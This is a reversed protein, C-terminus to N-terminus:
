GQKGTGLFKELHHQMRAEVLRSRTGTKELVVWQPADTGRRVLLLEEDSGRLGFHRIHGSALGGGRVFGDRPARPWGAEIVLQRVGARLTLLTGVMTAENVRFRHGESRTLQISGGNRNAQGALVTFTSLLWDIGASRALDNSARLALYEAVENRGALHARREAEALALAWAEDLESV